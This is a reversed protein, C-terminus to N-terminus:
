RHVLAFSYPFPTWKFMIEILAVVRDDDPSRIVLWDQKRLYLAEQEGAAYFGPPLIGENLRDSLKYIWSNHFHHFKGARVRGSDHVPM